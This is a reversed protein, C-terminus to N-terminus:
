TDSEVRLTHISIGSIKTYVTINLADSEVRLTHISITEASFIDILKDTVRWVSLTSQFLLLNPYHLTVPIDSEM